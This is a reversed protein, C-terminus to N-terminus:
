LDIFWNLMVEYVIKPDHCYAFRHISGLSCGMHQYFQCAVTNINQTEIKMQTCGRIHSWNSAYKFLSKGIGLGRKEPQVRIDWLVSLDGRGELMNVGNTNFAVAAAALPTLEEVALFFGWNQIDFHTSWELPGGETTKDYDKTYPIKIAEERLIIGGM